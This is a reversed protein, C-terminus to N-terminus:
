TQVLKRCSEFEGPTCYVFHGPSVERFAAPEEPTESMAAPEYLIRQRKREREPDPLPIASLLAKTYPHLPSRFLEDADALEVLHGAHMVAIRDSFYKVVSLDHAIFLLTLGLETRLDGLLNIVQARVSVDLASVPEDAILLEPQMILARAIGIRQRQGGSFAYPYLSAQERRLGVTELMEGVRDEIVNRDRIGKIRLGEAVIQGVTMRPDLSALPDQCIMQIKTVLQRDAHKQDYQVLRIEQELAQIREEMIQIQEAPTKRNKLARLSRRLLRLEEQQDATGAGIRQGKFFISGGTPKYLRVITRGLTTKGCGSEGVLGLIEGKKIEFSVHDVAKQLAAKRGFYVSLNEARLLIEEQDNM